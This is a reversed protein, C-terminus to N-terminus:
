SAIALLPPPRKCMEEEAGGYCPRCPDKIKGALSDGGPGRPEIWNREYGVRKKTCGLQANANEVIDM